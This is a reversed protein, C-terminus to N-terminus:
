PEGPKDIKLTARYNGPAIRAASTPLPEVRDLTVRYAGAVTTGGESIEVQTAAKSAEKIALMVKVEGAWVCTVDSPCRSDDIVAVFRVTVDGTKSSVSAGPALTVNVGLNVAKSEQTRAASCGALALCTLTVAMRNM